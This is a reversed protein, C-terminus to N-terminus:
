AALAGLELSDDRRQVADGLREVLGALQVLESAFFLVRASQGVDHAL